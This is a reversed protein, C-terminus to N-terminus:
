SALRLPDGLLTHLNERVELDLGNKGALWEVERYTRGGVRRLWCASATMRTPAVGVLDRAPSSIEFWHGQPSIARCGIASIDWGLAGFHQAAFIWERRADGQSPEFHIWWEHRIM